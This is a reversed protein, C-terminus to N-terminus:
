KTKKALICLDELPRNHTFGIHCLNDFLGIQQIDSFKGSKRIQYILGEKDYCWLHKQNVISHAFLSFYFSPPADKALHTKAWESFYWSHTLSKRLYRKAFIELDPVSILIYGGPNLLKHCNELVVLGDAPTFHEFVHQMRIFDFEGMKNLDGPQLPKTFDMKFYNSRMKEPILIEDIIDVFYFGENFATSSGLDLWRTQNNKILLKKLANKNKRFRNHYSLVFRSFLAYYIRSLM